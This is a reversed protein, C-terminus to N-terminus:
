LIQLFVLILEVTFCSILGKLLLYWYEFARIFVCMVFPFFLSILNERSVTKDLMRPIQPLSVAAMKNVGGGVGLVEQSWRM